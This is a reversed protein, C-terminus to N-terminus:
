SRDTAEWAERMTFIISPSSTAYIGGEGEKRREAYTRADIERSCDVVDIGELLFSRLQQIDSRKLVCDFDCM